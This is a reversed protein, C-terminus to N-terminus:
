RRNWAEDIATILDAQSWSSIAEIEKPSYHSAFVGIIEDQTMSTSRISIGTQSLSSTSAKYFLLDDLFDEIEATPFYM